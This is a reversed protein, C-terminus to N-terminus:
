NAKGSGAYRIAATGCEILFIVALDNEFSIEDM